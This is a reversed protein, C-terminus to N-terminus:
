CHTFKVGQHDNLVTDSQLCDYVFLNTVTCNIWSNHLRQWAGIYQGACKKKQATSKAKHVNAIYAQEHEVSAKDLILQSLKSQHEADLHTFYAM